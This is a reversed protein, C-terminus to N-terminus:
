ELVELVDYGPHRHPDIEEHESPWVERLNEPENGGGERRPKVHHLEKSEVKVEVEGTKRKKALVTRQPPKGDAQGKAQWAKKRDSSTWSTKDPAQPEAPRVPVDVGKTDGARLTDDAAAKVPGKVAARSEGLKATLAIAALETLGTATGRTNGPDWADKQIADAIQTSITGIVPLEQGVVGVAMEAGAGVGKDRYAAEVLAASQNMERTKAEVRAVTGGEDRSLIRDAEMVLSADGTLKQYGLAVGCAAGVRVTDVVNYAGEVTNRLFDGVGGAAAQAHEWLSGDIRFLGEADRCTLVRGGVYAYLSMGDVYGMPDRQM